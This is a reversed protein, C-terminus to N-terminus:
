TFIDDEPVAEKFYGREDVIDSPYTKYNIASVPIKQRNLYYVAYHIPWQPGHNHDLVHEIKQIGNRLLWLGFVTVSRHMGVDCHIYIRKSGREKLQDLTMMVGEIMTEHPPIPEFWPFWFYNTKKPFVVMKDTVSVWADIKKFFSKDCEAWTAVPRNGVYITMKGVKYECYRLTVKEADWWKLLAPKNEDEDRSRGM